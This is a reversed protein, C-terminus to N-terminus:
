KGTFVPKRKEMFARRGEAFDQSDSCADMLAECRGLDRVASDKALESTIVKTARVSLPANGAITAAYDRVFGELEAKAVVRNVLGIEKAEEAGYRRATYLIEKTNSHGVLDIIRRTFDVRYAISLRAAPIAFRADEAAIRIDCCAALAVGGGMCYGHIMAITPKEVDALADFMRTSVASYHAASAASNRKEEFESIDAGTNFAKEGAGTVILVREDDAAAFGEIVELAGVTMDLSLANLKDPQNLILWRVGDGARTLIKDTATM